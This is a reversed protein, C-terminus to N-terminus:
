EQVINKITVSRASADTALNIKDSDIVFGDAEVTVSITADDELITQYPYVIM